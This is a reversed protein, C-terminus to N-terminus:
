LVDYLLYRIPTTHTCSLVFTKHLLEVVHTCLALASMHSESADQFTLMHLQSERCFWLAALKGDLLREFTNLGQMCRKREKEEATMSGVKGVLTM